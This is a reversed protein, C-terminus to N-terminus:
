ALREAAALDEASNINLFPDVPQVPWVVEVFGVAKAFGKLSGGGSALYNSALKLADVRWLGCVPHLSGGSSAVAAAAGGIEESLRGPLDSPLFPMDAAITLAAEVGREDAFRLAAILGGLPGQIDPADEIWAVAAGRIQDPDRVAVVIHKSWGRARVIARDLLTIGALMRLPKGGGIRRGEGGALIVTAFNM